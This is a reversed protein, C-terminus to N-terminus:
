KKLKAQDKDNTFKKTLLTLAVAACNIPGDKDVYNQWGLGKRVDKLELGAGTFYTQPHIVVTWELNEFPVDTESQQLNTFLTNVLAETIETLRTFPQYVINMPAMRNSIQIHGRVRAATRQASWGTADQILTRTYVRMFDALNRQTAELSYNQAGTTIPRYSITHYNRSVRTTDVEYLPLNRTRAFEEFRNQLVRRRRARVARITRPLQVRPPPPPPGRARKRAPGPQNSGKRKM